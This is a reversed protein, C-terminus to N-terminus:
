WHFLDIDSHITWALWRLTGVIVLTVVLVILNAYVICFIFSTATVTANILSIILWVFMTTVNLLESYQIYSILRLLAITKLGTMTCHWQPTWAAPSQNYCIEYYHYGQLSLYIFFHWYFIIVWWYLFARPTVVTSQLSPPISWSPSVPCSCGYVLTWAIMVIPLSPWTCEAKLLNCKTVCGQYVIFCRSIM